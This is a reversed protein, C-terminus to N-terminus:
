DIPSKPFDEEIGNLKNMAKLIAIREKVTLKNYEEVSLGTSFRIQKQLSLKKDTEELAEDLEVALLERVVFVRSGIKVEM